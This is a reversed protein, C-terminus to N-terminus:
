IGLIKMTVNSNDYDNSHENIKKQLQLAAEVNSKIQAKNYTNFIFNQFKQCLSPDNIEFHDFLTECGFRIQKKFYKNEGRFIALQNPLEELDVFMLETMENVNDYLNEKLRKEISSSQFFSELHQHCCNVFEIKNQYFYEKLKKCKDVDVCFYIASKKGWDATYLQTLNLALEGRILEIDNKNAILLGTEEIFEDIAGIKPDKLIGTHLRGNSSVDDIILSGGFTALHGAAPMFLGNCRNRFAEQFKKALIHEKIAEGHGSSGKPTKKIDFKRLANASITNKRGILVKCGGKDNIYPLIYASTYDKKTGQLINGSQGTFTSPVITNVPNNTIPVNNDISVDGKNFTTLLESTSLLNDVPPIQAPKNIQNDINNFFLNNNSISWM